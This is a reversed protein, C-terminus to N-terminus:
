MQAPHEPPAGAFIERAVYVGDRVSYVLFGGWIFDYM